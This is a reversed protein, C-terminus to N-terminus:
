FTAQSLHVESSSQGHNLPVNAQGYSVGSPKIM